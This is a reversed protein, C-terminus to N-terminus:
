DVLFYHGNTKKVGGSTLLAAIKRSRPFCRYLSSKRIEYTEMPIEVPFGPFGSVMGPPEWGAGFESSRGITAAKMMEQFLSTEVVPDSVLICRFLLMFSCHM